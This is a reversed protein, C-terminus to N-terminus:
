KVLSKQHGYIVAGKLATTEADQPVFVERQPYKFAERVAFQLMPSMAYSGVLLISSVDKLTPYLFLEQMHYIIKSCSEDFLAKAKEVDIQLKNAVFIVRENYKPKSAIMENIDSEPNMETFTEKLTSPIDLTFKGTLKPSIQKFKRIEFNTLFKHFDDECKSLFAKMVDDGVIDTLLSCFSAKVKNKDWDFNYTSYLKKLIGRPQVDYVAIEVGVDLYLYYFIVYSM